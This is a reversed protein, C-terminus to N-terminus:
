GTPWPPRSRRPADRRPRLPGIADLLGVRVLEAVADVLGSGCLGARSSTASSGSRSAGDGDRTSSSAGRDRRRRRAHRLPDRRGRLGARGPAATALSATATASCSRATPASTSSCGPGSTATWAPPWCAPSSTAASTPASRPSSRPGRARTCRWGSTPPSCRRAAAATSMVFPAVGLPEPDIGLALATMTANGALAVEYVHAPDVGAERACRPPSSARADRRGRGAAAGLADPDMMTASIRTIVDGGFPQQRNLM